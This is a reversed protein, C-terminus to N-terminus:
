GRRREREASIHRLIKTWAAIILSCESNLKQPFKIGVCKSSLKNSIIGQWFHWRDLSILCEMGIKVLMQNKFIIKKQLIDFYGFLTRNSVRFLRKPVYFLVSIKKLIATEWYNFFYKQSLVLNFRWWNM